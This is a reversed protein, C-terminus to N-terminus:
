SVHSSLLDTAGDGVRDADADSRTVSLPLSLVRWDVDECVTFESGRYGFRQRSDPTLHPPTFRARTRVGHLDLDEIDRDREQRAAQWTFPYLRRASRMGERRCLGDAGVIERRSWTLHHAISWGLCADMGAIFMRM